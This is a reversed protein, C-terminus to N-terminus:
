SQLPFAALGQAVLVADLHARGWLVPPPDDGEHTPDPSFDVILANIVPQFAPDPLPDLGKVWRVFQESVDARAAYHTVADSDGLPITYSVPGWGMAAGVADAASKTAAPVILVASYTM